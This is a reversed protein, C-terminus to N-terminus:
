GDKYSSIFGKWILWVYQKQVPCRQKTRFNNILVIEHEDICNTTDELAWDKFKLRQLVGILKHVM